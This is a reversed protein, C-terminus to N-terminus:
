ASLHLLVTGQASSSAAAHGQMSHWGLAGEGDLVLPRCTDHQTSDEDCNSHVRPRCCRLLAKELFISVAFVASTDLTHEAAGPKLDFWEHTRGKFSGPRPM